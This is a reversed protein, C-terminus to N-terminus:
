ASGVWFSTENSLYFCCFTLARVRHTHPSTFSKVPFTQTTIVAFVYRVEATDTLYGEYFIFYSCTLEKTVLITIGVAPLGVGTGM